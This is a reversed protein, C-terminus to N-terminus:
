AGCLLFSVWRKELPVFNQLRKTLNTQNEQMRKYNGALHTWKNVSSLFGRRYNIIFQLIFAEKFFHM